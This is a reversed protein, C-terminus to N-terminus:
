TRKPPADPNYGIKRLRDYFRERDSEIEALAEELSIDPLRGERAMQKLWKVDERMLDGEPYEM